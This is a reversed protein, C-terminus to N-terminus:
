VMHMRHSHFFKYQLKLFTNKYSFRVIHLWPVEPVFQNLFAAAKCSGGGRGVGVNQLTARPSRRLQTEFYNWLPLRWVRDGTHVGAFKIRNWLEEDNTYVGACVEGLAEDIDCSLTGIDIIMKPSYKQAM